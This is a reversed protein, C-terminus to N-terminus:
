QYFLTRTNQFILKESWRHGTFVVVLQSLMANIDEAMQDVGIGGLLVLTKGM